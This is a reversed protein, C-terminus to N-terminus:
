CVYLKNKFYKHLMIRAINVKKNKIMPTCFYVYKAKEIFINLSSLGAVMYSPFTFLFPLSCSKDYHPIARYM